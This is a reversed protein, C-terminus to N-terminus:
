SHTLVREALEGAVDDIAEADRPTAGAESTWGRVRDLRRVSEGGAAPRELIVYGPIAYAERVAPYVRAFWAGEHEVRLTDQKRFSLVQVIGTWSDNKVGIQFVFNDGRVRLWPEPVISEEPVGKAKFVRRMTRLVESRGMAGSSGGTPEAVRERYVVELVSRPDGMAANPATFQVVNTAERHLEDLYERRAASRGHVSSKPLRRQYGAVVERLYRLRDSGTPLHLKALNFRAGAFGHDPSVVLVGINKAEDRIPDPVYRVVSFFCVPEKGSGSPEVTLM